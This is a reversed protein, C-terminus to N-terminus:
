GRDRYFSSLHRFQAAGQNSRQPEIHRIVMMAEAPPPRLDGTRQRDRSRFDPLGDRAAAEDLKWYARSVPAFAPQTCLVHRAGALGDAILASLADLPASVADFQRLSLSLADFIWTNAAAGAARHEIHIEINEAGTRNRWLFRGNALNHAYRRALEAFGQRQVYDHVTALLKAQHLSKLINM